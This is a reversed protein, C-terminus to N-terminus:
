SIEKLFFLLLYNPSCSKLFTKTNSLKKNQRFNRSFRQSNLLLFWNLNSVRKVYFCPMLSRLVSLNDNMQKRRNREVTIHSVKQQGDINADEDGTAAVKQKKSKHSSSVAEIETEFQDESPNIADFSFTSNQSVLNTGNITEPPQSDGEQPCVTSSEHALPPLSNFNSTSVGDLAELISFIDEPSAVSFSSELFQNDSDQFFEPLLTHINNEHVSM